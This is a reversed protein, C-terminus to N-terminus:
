SVYMNPHAVINFYTKKGSCPIRNAKFSCFFSFSICDSNSNMCSRNCNNLAFLVTVVVFSTYCYRRVIYLLCCVSHFFSFSHCVFIKSQSLLAIIAVSNTKTSTSINTQASRACATVAIDAHLTTCQFVYQLGLM